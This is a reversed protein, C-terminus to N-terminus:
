NQKEASCGGPIAVWAGPFVNKVGGSFFIRLIQNNVAREADSLVNKPFFHTERPKL